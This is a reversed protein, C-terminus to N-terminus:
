GNVANRKSADRLLDLVTLPKKDYLVFDIVVRNAWDIKSRDFDIYIDTVSGGSHGAAAEVTKPPIDLDTAITIWSHRAWYMSIPPLGLGAATVPEDWAEGPWRWDLWEAETMAATPPLCAALILLLLILHKRM